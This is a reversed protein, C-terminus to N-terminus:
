FQPSISNQLKAPLLGNVLDTKSHFTKCDNSDGSINGWPMQLRDSVGSIRQHGREILVVANADKIRVKRMCIEECLKFPKVSVQLFEPSFPFSCIIYGDAGGIVKMIGVNPKCEPLM